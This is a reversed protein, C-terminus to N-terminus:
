STMLLWKETVQSENLFFAEWINTSTGTSLDLHFLAVDAAQLCQSFYM